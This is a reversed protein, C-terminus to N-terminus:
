GAGSGLGLVYCHLAKQGGAHCGDAAPQRPSSSYDDQGDEM